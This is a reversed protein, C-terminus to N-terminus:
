LVLESGGFTDIWNVSWLFSMAEFLYFIFVFNRDYILDLSQVSSFLFAKKFKEKKKVKLLKKVVIVQYNGFINDSM